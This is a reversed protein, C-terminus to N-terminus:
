KLKKYESYTIEKVDKSNVYTDDCLVYWDPNILSRTKYPLIYNKYVKKHIKARYSPNKRLYINNSTGQLLKDTKSCEAFNNTINASKSVKGEASNAYSITATKKVTTSNPKYWKVPYSRKKPVYKKALKKTSKLTKEEIIKEVVKQTDMINTEPELKSKVMWLQQGKNYDDILRILVNEKMDLIVEDAKVDIIEEVQKKKVLKKVKKKFIAKDTERGDTLFGLIKINKAVYQVAFDNTEQGKVQPYVSIIKIIDNPEVAYNPNQFLKMSMNYSNYKFDITKAKQIEIQTSLKEKLFAENKYISEKAYKNVIERKLLPKTLVFQRAIVTQKIDKDTILSDKKINEKAVFITVLKNNDEMIQQNESYFYYSIGIASLLMSVLVLIIALQKDFKM